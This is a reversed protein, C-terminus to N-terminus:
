PLAFYIIIIIILPSFWNSGTMNIQAGAELLTVICDEHGHMSAIHLASYGRLDRANVDAGLRLLAAVQSRNGRRVSRRLEMSRREVTDVPAAAM